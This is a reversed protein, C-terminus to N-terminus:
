QGVLEGYERIIDYSSDDAPAYGVHGYLENVIALGEESEGIAIFAERIKEVWEESMDPRVAIADNPVREETFFSDLDEFINPYDGVLLNRGDEFSFAADADGNIVAMIANDIGNITVFQIDRDVDIDKKIMEAVPFVYGSASVVDQSAITKGVLDEYGNIGSDSKYIIQGRFSSVKEDTTKGGPQEVDYLESQLVAVAADREKALVYANPPMIGLDVQKSSMAEIITSYDTSVSLEVPIGLEESLLDELPKSKADVTNEARTPVFQVKLVEPEYEASDNGDGSGSGGCAVLMMATVIGVIILSLKNM